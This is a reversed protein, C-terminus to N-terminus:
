IQKRLIAALLRKLQAAKPLQFDWQFKTYSKREPVPRWIIKILLLYKNVTSKKKKWFIHWNKWPWLIGFWLLFKCIEVMARLLIEQPAYFVEEAMKYHKQM